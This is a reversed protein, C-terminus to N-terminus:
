PMLTSVRGLAVLAAQLRNSVNLKKFINYVHTKVTRRSIFLERAIDENSTGSAIMGLIEKERPTLAPATMKLTQMSVKKGSLYESLFKRPYWLEGKLIARVCKPFREMPEHDYFVGRVGLELAEREIGKGAEVNFLATFCQSLAGYPEIRHESWRGTIDADLCDLLLLHTRESEDEVIPASNPGPAFMCTLGNKRKFFACLLENQLRNPGVIHVLPKSATM